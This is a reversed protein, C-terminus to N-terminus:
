LVEFAPFKNKEIQLYSWEFRLGANKGLRTEVSLTWRPCSPGLGRAAGTLAPVHLGPFNNGSGSGRPETRTRAVSVGAEQFTQPVGHGGRRSQLRSPAWHPPSAAGETWSRRGQM